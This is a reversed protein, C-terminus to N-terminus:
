SPLRSYLSGSRRVEVPFPAPPAALTVSRVCTGELARSGCVGRPLSLLQALISRTRTLSRRPSQWPHRSESIMRAHRTDLRSLSLARVHARLSVLLLSVISLRSFQSTDLHHLRQLGEPVHVYTSIHVSHVRCASARTRASHRGSSSLRFFFVAM